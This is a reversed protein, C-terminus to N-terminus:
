PQVSGGIEFEPHPRCQIDPSRRPIYTHPTSAPTRRPAAPAQSHTESSSPPGQAEHCRRAAGQPDPRAAASPRRRVARRNRGLLTVRKQRRCRLHYSLHTNRQRATHHARARNRPGSRAHVTTAPVGLSRACPRRCPRLGFFALPKVGYYFLSFRFWSSNRSGTGRERTGTEGEKSTSKTMTKSYM